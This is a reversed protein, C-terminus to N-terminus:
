ENFNVEKEIIYNKKNNTNQYIKWLYEGLMSIFLFNISFLGLIFVILSTYGPVDPEMIFYLAVFTISSLFTLIFTLFSFFSFYRIWKGTEDFLGNIFYSMKKLFSYNSKGYKRKLREYKVTSYSFGTNILRSQIFIEKDYNQILENKVKSTFLIFDSGGKLLMKNSLKNLILWALTSLTNKIFGDNRNSREAFIINFGKREEEILKLIIEPPDQLDASLIVFSSNKNVSELGALIANMQGFNKLLKILKLKNKYKKNIRVLESWSNDSSGDDILILRIIYDKIKNQLKLCRQVLESISELNNYVPIVVHLNKKM